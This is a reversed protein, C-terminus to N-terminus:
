YPRTPESIHILSLDQCSNIGNSATVYYTTTQTPAVNITETTEGNSWAYSHNSQSNYLEQIEQSTLARNWIGIDDIIGNFFRDQLRTCGFFIGGTSPNNSHITDNVMTCVLAGNLYYKM